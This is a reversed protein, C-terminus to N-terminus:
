VLKRYSSTFWRAIVTMLIVFYCYDIMNSFLSCFENNYRKGQDIPPPTIDYSLRRTELLALYAELNRGATNYSTENSPHSLTVNTVLEASVATSCM